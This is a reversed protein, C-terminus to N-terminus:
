VPDVTTRPPMQIEYGWRTLDNALAVCRARLRDLTTEDPEVEFSTTSRARMYEAQALRLDRELDGRAEHEFMGCTCRRVPGIITAVARKVRDDDDRQWRLVVLWRHEHREVELWERPEQEPWRFEPLHAGIEEFHDLLVMAEAPDAANLALLRDDRVGAIAACIVAAVRPDRVLYDIRRKYYAHRASMCRECMARREGAPLLVIAIAQNPCPKLQVPEGCRIDPEQWPWVKRTESM